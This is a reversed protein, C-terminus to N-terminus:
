EASQTTRNGNERSNKESKNEPLSAHTAKEVIPLPGVEAPPFFFDRPASLFRRLLMGAMSWERKLNVRRSRLAVTLALGFSVALNTLGILVVGLISLVWQETSLQTDLSVLAFAFNASSFTIHRIDIPLGFFTGLTGITGLMVGFFFNGTLAGLNDGIYEAVRAWRAKGFLRAPWLLQQLRLSMNGYAAKNDYYGSILGALFLCVGAIAAHPLALSHIPDLDHLLHQAKDANILPHGTLPQWISGILYAVPMVLAVNGVIAIFQSRLVRVALEVLEDLKQKGTDIALAMLAATMAPQKTAITFHLMYILVFGLGYNLSYMMAHGFPALPLTTILIKILAMCGVIVGAGAASRMMGMWESRSNAVYHEGTRGAHATVQLSLLETNTAILESLNHKRNDATVLDKFLRVVIPVVQDAHRADLLSLLIRLRDISQTLRLLLRTLSVSTGQIASARRIKGVIEECQMLLVDIHRSDERVVRRDSLWKDYGSIYDNMEANQRLFPSEFEEISPYNRVLEAELGIASIRYSLVQVAGLLEQLTKIHLATAERRNFGIAREVNAWVDDDIGGVWRHDDTRDFIKAFVDKFYEDRVLPPLWKYNVSHWMASWFGISLTIGTDTLLHSLKRSRIVRELYQRLALAWEPNADLVDCLAQLNQTAQEVNDADHPRLEGVLARLAALDNGSDSAALNALILNVPMFIKDM